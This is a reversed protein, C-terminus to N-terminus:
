ISVSGASADMAGKADNSDNATTAVAPSAPAVPVTSYFPKYVLWHHALVTHIRLSLASIAAQLFGLKSRELIEVASQPMAECASGRMKNRQTALTETHIRLAASVREEVVERLPCEYRAARLLTRELLAAESPLTTRGLAREALRMLDAVLRSLPIEGAAPPVAPGGAPRLPETWQVSCSEPFLQFCEAALSDYDVKGAANRFEAKQSQTQPPRMRGVAQLFQGFSLFVTGAISLRETERRVSVIRAEDM